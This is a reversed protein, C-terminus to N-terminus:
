KEQIYLIAKGINQAIDTATVGYDGHTKAAIEGALGHVYCGVFTAIEPKYGQAMFSAIVGTLADGSGPTSMAPCGSSNFFVKGDPWVVATYRGKLVIIIKYFYAMEIAKKLRTESTKHEGFIRDFEGAHPTLVSLVPLYNLLIPRKAICNLADADLLVSKGLANQSKLFRELADITLDETGIGPGVAIATFNDTNGIETIFDEGKDSRFMASPVASQLVSMGTAGSHVTVKGAGARLAAMASIVAAGYMGYSGACILASGFDRKSCFPKRLPLYRGVSKGQMFYYSYPSSQIAKRSLGVDLVKWEGVVGSMDSFMFALRPSGLALTLNAHIMNETSVSDNWESFMGSPVDISVVTAGIENINKVLLQISVPLPRNLGSGFLGDIILSNPDIEPWAFKEKGTIEYLTVKEPDGTEMLRDRFVKCEYSLRKGGINLLFVTPAYGRLSLQRSVELADAGNNGWGAFVVLPKDPNWRATIEGVIAEAANEILDLATLGENKITYDEINKIEDNSFIRM